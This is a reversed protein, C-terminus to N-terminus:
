KIWRSESVSPRLRNTFELKNKRKTLYPLREFLRVRCQLNLKFYKLHFHSSRNSLGFYGPDLISSFSGHAVPSCPAGKPCNEEVTKLCFACEQTPAYIINERLVSNWNSISSPIPLAWDTYFRAPRGPNSERRSLFKLGEVADLGVILGVWNRDIPVPPEKGPHYFPQPTESSIEM